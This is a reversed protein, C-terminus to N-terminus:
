PTGDCQSTGRPSGGLAAVYECLKVGELASRENGNSPMQRTYKSADWNESLLCQPISLRRIQTKWVPLIPSDDNVKMEETLVNGERVYACVVPAGNMHFNNCAFSIVRIEGAGEWPEEVEERGFRTPHEEWEEVGGEWSGGAEGIVGIFLFCDLPKDETCSFTFLCPFLLVPVRRITILPILFKFALTIRYMGNHDFRPLTGDHTWCIYYLMIFEMTEPFHILRWSDDKQNSADANKKKKIVADM